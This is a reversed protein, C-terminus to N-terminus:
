LIKIRALEQGYEVPEDNQVFYETIIGKTGAQVENPLGLSEVIGIVSDPEVEDGEAPSNETKRFYGVNVSRIIVEDEISALLKAVKEDPSAVSQAPTLPLEISIENDGQSITVQTLGYQRAVNVIEEIDNSNFRSM